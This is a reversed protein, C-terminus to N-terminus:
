LAGFTKLLAVATVSWSVAITVKWIMLERARDQEKEAEEICWPVSGGPFPDRRLEEPVPGINDLPSGTTGLDPALTVADGVDNRGQRIRSRAPLMTGVAWIAAEALFKLTTLVKEGARRMFRGSERIM